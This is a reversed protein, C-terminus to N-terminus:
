QRRSAHKAIWCALEYLDDIRFAGPLIPRRPRCVLPGAHDAELRAALAASNEIPWNKRPSGSFTSSPLERRATAPFGPIGIAPMNPSTASRTSTSTPPTSLPVKPRSPLFSTFSSSPAVADRFEPRNAGYWSVISDFSRLEDLLTPPPDTVALLDLGTSAISRVRNAFRILPVTRSPTWVELYDSRLNELAPLSVIVDGIAGPRIVLRRM